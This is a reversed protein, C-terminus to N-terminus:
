VWVWGPQALGIGLGLGSGPKPPGPQALSPGPVMGVQLAAPIMAARMFTEGFFLLTLYNLSMHIAGMIHPPNNSDLTLLACCGYLGAVDAEILPGWRPSAAALRM